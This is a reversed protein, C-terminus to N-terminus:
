PRGHISTRSELCSRRRFVSGFQSPSVASVPLREWSFILWFISKEDVRQCDKPMQATGLNFRWKTGSPPVLTQYFIIIRVRFEVHKTLLNLTTGLGLIAAPIFDGPCM